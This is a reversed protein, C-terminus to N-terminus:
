EGRPRWIVQSLALPKPSSVWGAGDSLWQMAAGFSSPGPADPHAGPPRWTDRSGSPELLPADSPLSTLARAMDVAEAFGGIADVLGRDVAQAGTWVRGRGFGDVVEPTMARAAAVRDVFVSYTREMHATLLAREADSFPQSSTFMGAQEGRAVAHSNVNLRALLGANVVKAM